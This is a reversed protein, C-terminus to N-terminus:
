TTLGRIPSNPLDLGALLSHKPVIDWTNNTWLFFMNIGAPRQFFLQSPQFTLNFHVLSFNLSSTENFCFVNLDCQILIDRPAQWSLDSDSTNVSRQSNIASTFSDFSATIVAGQSIGFAISVPPTEQSDLSIFGSIDIRRPADQASNWYSEIRPEIRSIDPAQGPAPNPSLSFYQCVVGPIAVQFSLSFPTNDTAPAALAINIQPSATGNSNPIILTLHSSRFATSSAILTITEASVECLLSVPVVELPQFVLHSKNYSLECNSPDFDSVDWIYVSSTALPQFDYAHDTMPEIPFTSVARSNDEVFLSVNFFKPQPDFRGNDFIPIKIKQVMETQFVISTRTFAFDSSGTGPIMVTQVVLKVEGDSGAIGSPSRIISLEVFEDRAGVNYINSSFEIIGDSVCQGNVLAFLPDCVLCTVNSCQRCRPYKSNCRLCKKENSSMLFYGSVCETCASATCKKCSPYGAASCSTPTSCKFANYELFVNSTQNFRSDGMVSPSLERGKWYLPLLTSGDAPSIEVSEVWGPYCKCKWPSDCVGQDCDSSPVPFSQCLPYDCIRGGWGSDCQCVDPAVAIGNLCPPNSIPTECQSGSWGYFCECKNPSICVGQGGVCNAVCVPVECSPGSYGASCACTNPAVCAGHKCKPSCLPQDCNTGFWELPTCMCCGGGCAKNTRACQALTSFCSSDGSCIEALDCASSMKNRDAPIWNNAIAISCCSSQTCLSPHLDCGDTRSLVETLTCDGTQNGCRVNATFTNGHARDDLICEQLMTVIHAKTSYCDSMRTQVGRSSSSSCWSSLESGVALYDDALCLYPCNTTPSPRVGCMYACGQERSISPDLYPIDGAFSKGGLQLSVCNSICTTLCCDGGDMECGDSKMDNVYDCYGNGVRTRDCVQISKGRIIDRWSTDSWAAGSLDCSMLIERLLSCLIIARM